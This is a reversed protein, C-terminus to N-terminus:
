AFSAQSMKSHPTHTQTIIRLTAAWTTLYLIKSEVFVVYLPDYLAKLLCAVDIASDPLQVIACGEITARNSPQPISLMDSFVTSHKSLISQHVRFLTKEANLIISGDNFWLDPHRTMNPTSVNSSGSTGSSEGDIETRARKLPNPMYKLATPQHISLVPADPFGFFNSLQYKACKHSFLYLYTLFHTLEDL